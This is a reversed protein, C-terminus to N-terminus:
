FHDFVICLHKLHEEEMKSIVIADDLYILYYTLNLEGLYNQMLRQFTTPANCLGFAMHECEFCGINWITSATYQKWAEDIAIQWFGAKLDLCSFCGAGVLGEIAGQIWPFLYSDKKTRANLKHCDICFHLGRNKKHVLVAAICWPSQSPHIAGAELMEKRHACVEDVMLPSIRWFREKFPKHDVVRIEYKALDMCGLERPELSFINHYEALLAWAAVQSWGSWKDLGSLDLQQFFLKWREEVMM